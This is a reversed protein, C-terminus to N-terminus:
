TGVIVHAGCESGVAHCGGVDFAAPCAVIGSAPGGGKGVVAGCVLEQYLVELMVREIGVSDDNHTMGGSALQGNAEGRVLAAYGPNDRQSSDDVQLTGVLQM